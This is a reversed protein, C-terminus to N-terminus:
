CKFIWITVRITSNIFKLCSNWSTLIFVVTILTTLKLTITLIFILTNNCSHNCITWYSGYENWIFTLSYRIAIVFPCDLSELLMTYVLQLCDFCFCLVINTPSIFVFLTFLVRTRMCVVPPFSLITEHKCYIMKSHTLKRLPGQSNPNWTKLTVLFKLEWLVGRRM